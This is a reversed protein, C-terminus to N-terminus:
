TTVPLEVLHACTAIATPRSANPEYKQETTNLGNGQATPLSKNKANPGSKIMEATPKKLAVWPVTPPIRWVSPERNM